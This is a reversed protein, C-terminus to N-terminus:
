EPHYQQEGRGHRDMQLQRVRQVYGEHHIRLQLGGNTSQVRHGGYHPDRRRKTQGQHLRLGPRHPHAEATPTAGGRLAGQRDPGHHPLDEQRCPGEEREEQSSDGHESALASTGRQQHTDSGTGGQNSSSISSTIRRMSPTRTRTAPTTTPRPRAPLATTAM